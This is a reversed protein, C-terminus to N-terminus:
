QDFHILGQWSWTCSHLLLLKLESVQNELLFHLWAQWWSFQYYIGKSVVQCHWGKFQEIGVRRFLHAEGELLPQYSHSSSRNFVKSWSNLHMSSTSELAYQPLNQLLKCFYSPYECLRSIWLGLWGLPRLSIRESPAWLVHPLDRRRLNTSTELERKLIYLAGMHNLVYYFTKFFAFSLKNKFFNEVLEHLKWSVVAAKTNNFNDYLLSM